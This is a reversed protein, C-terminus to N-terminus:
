SKVNGLVFMQTLTPTPSGGMKELTIAFAQARQITKLQCIGPLDEVVGADLPKGDVL